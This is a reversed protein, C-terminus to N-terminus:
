IIVNPYNWYDYFFNKKLIYQHHNKYDWAIIKGEEILFFIFPNVSM